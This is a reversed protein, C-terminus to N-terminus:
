GFRERFGNRAEGSFIILEGEEVLSSNGISITRKHEGPYVGFRPHLM